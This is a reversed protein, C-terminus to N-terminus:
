YLSNYNITNKVSLFYDVYELLKERNEKNDILNYNYILQNIQSRFITGDELVKDDESNEKYFYKISNLSFLNNTIFINKIISKDEDNTITLLFEGFSNLKLLIDNM